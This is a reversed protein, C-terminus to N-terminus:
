DGAEEVPAPPQAAPTSVSVPRVGPAGGAQLTGPPPEVIGFYAALVKRVIPAAASGGHGGHEVVAVVAIEPNESPAYAVFWANDRYKYPIRSEDESRYAGKVVQATGTKGSVLIGPLRSRGGTGGPENVVGEFGKRLLALNKDSVAVRGRVVPKNVEIVRNDISVAKRLVHPEYVTGGNGLAAYANVLQIPTVLDYGQGIAISPTEGLMWKHGFRKMKWEATPVLGNKEGGLPIGTKRGLGFSRAFYALRNVGVKVGLKYFYTDCSQVIAKHLAVSGHGRKRWCRYTHNGLTYSGPCGTAATPTIARTEIGAAATFLKYTSGPAYTGQIARNNLPKHPDNILSRWVKSKAGTAFVSPDLAPRSVMALVEGNRPDLAVVAGEKAELAEEAAKQVKYDITLYLDNGPTPEIENLVKGERGGVDVEVNKGGNKGRLIREYTRELGYKGIFDGQQYGAFDKQKLERDNIEGLYGILHAALAGHPYSRVPQVDVVMGPLDLKVSEVIAFEDWTMDSILPFARNGLRARAKRMNELLEAEDRGLLRAILRAAAKPHKVEHPIMMLNFSARSDVLVIGNRDRIVGRPALVRRIRISNKQATEKFYDGQIIQLYFLRCLLLVFVVFIITFALVFKPRYEQSDRQNISVNM